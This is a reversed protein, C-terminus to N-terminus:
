SLLAQGEIVEGVEVVTYETSIALSSPYELMVQLSYAMIDLIDDKNQRILPNFRVAQSLVEGFVEKSAQVEGAMWSRFFDLIRSNKPRGHPLVPAIQMGQIQLQECIHEFWFLLTSQYAVAEACILACGTEQCWSLCLHIVQLPTLQEKSLRVLVPVGEHVEFLGIALDDLKPDKKGCMPDIMIFKGVCASISTDWGSVKSVDLHMGAIAQPDNLVEAYFIDQAGLATDQEFEEMLQEFPYLDEWLAKGDALIAGVIFSIWSKNLQLNRLMCGYVGKKVELDTYMNGIYIYTCGTPAKAKLLTGLFWSMFKLAEVQSQSCEKTQADDLAIFDPRANKVNIGRVATGAGVAKLIINRGRFKFKKFDQRDVELEFRWNGFVTRVNESDLMDVVDAIINEALEKIAGVVLIFKRNSYLIAWLILLKLVITKGHGRPLGVAYKSFDRERQLAGTLMSWLQKFIPPFELTIDEPMAMMGFTDLCMRCSDEIEQRDLSYEEVAAAIPNMQM